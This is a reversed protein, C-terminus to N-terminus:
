RWSRRRGADQAERQARTADTVGDDIAEPDGGTGEEGAAEIMEHPSVTKAGDNAKQEARILAKTGGVDDKAKGTTQVWLPAPKSLAELLMQFPEADRRDHLTQAIRCREEDCADSIAHGILEHVLERGVENRIEHGANGSFASACWMPARGPIGDGDRERYEDFAVRASRCSEGLRAGEADPRKMLSNQGGLM